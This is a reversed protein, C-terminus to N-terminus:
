AWGHRLVAVPPQLCAFRQPHKAQRKPDRPGCLGTSLRTLSGAGSRQARCPFPRRPGGRRRTSRLSADSEYLGDDSQGERCATDRLPCARKLNGSAARSLQHFERWDPASSTATARPHPLAELCSQRPRGTRPSRLTACSLKTQDSRSAETPRRAAPSACSIPLGM